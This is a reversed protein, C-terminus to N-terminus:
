VSVSRKLKIVTRRNLKRGERTHNDAEPYRQGHHRPTAVRSASVGKGLIYRYVADARKESLQLNELRYGSNDTHADISLSVVSSDKKLYNAIDSLKLKQQESLKWHGTKYYLKTSKLQEFNYPLLKALCSTISPLHTTLGTTPLELVLGSEHPQNCLELFLWMPRILMNLWELPSISLNLQIGHGTERPDVKLNVGNLAATRQESPEEQRLWPPPSMLLRASKCFTRLPATHIYVTSCRGAGLILSARGLGPVDHSLSCKIAEVEDFAWASDDFPVSYSASNALGCGLFVSVFVAVKNSFWFKSCLWRVM